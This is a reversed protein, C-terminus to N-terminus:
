KKFRCKKIPSFRQGIVSELVSLGQQLWDRLGTKHDSYNYLDLTTNKKLHIM